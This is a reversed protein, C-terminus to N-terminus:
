AGSGRAARDRRRHARRRAVVGSGRWRVRLLPDRGVITGLRGGLDDVGSAGSSRRIRLLEHLRARHWRAVVGCGWREPRDGREHRPDLGAVSKRRHPGPPPPRVWGRERPVVGDGQVEPSDAKHSAIYSTDVYSIAMHAGDPSWDIDNIAGVGAPQGVLLTHEGGEVDISYVSGSGPGRRVRDQIRRTVVGPQSRCLRRQGRGRGRTGLDTARGTAADFLTVDRGRVLVLEDGAPSWAWPSWGGVAALRRPAGGITDAVWLSGVTSGAGRRFAVWERDSSWAAGTISVEPGGPLSGADVITRGEGTAPDQAVLKQGGGILVEGVGLPAPKPPIPRDAPVGALTLSRVLVAAMALAVTVGLAGARIRRNRQKRERRGLLREFDGQALDVAQSERDLADAIRSM